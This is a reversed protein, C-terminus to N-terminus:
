NWNVKAGISDRRKFIKSADISDRRKPIKYAGISDRRKSIKSADSDCKIRQALPVDDEDIYNKFSSM